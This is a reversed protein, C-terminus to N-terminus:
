EKREQKCFRLMYAIRTAHVSCYPYLQLWILLLTDQKILRSFLKGGDEIRDASKAPLLVLFISYSQVMGRVVLSTRLIRVQVSIQENLGPDLRCFGEFAGKITPRFPAFHPLGVRLMTRNAIILAGVLQVPCALGDGNDSQLPANGDRERNGRVADLILPTINRHSIQAHAITVVRQMDNDRDRLRVNGWAILHDTNIETEIMRSHSRSARKQSTAVPFLNLAASETETALQLGFSCFARFTVQFLHGTARQSKVPITIVDEGLADNLIGGRARGNHNLVQGMKAGIRLNAALALFLVRLPLEMTPAKGLELAEQDVFGLLAPDAHDLNVRTVGTLGARVTARLMTGVTTRLRKELAASAAICEISVQIGTVVNPIFM